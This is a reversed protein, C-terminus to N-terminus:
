NGTRGKGLVDCVEVLKQGEKAVVAKLDVWGFTHKGLGGEGEESVGDCGGADGGERGVDLGNEVVGWRVCDLVELSEEAEDIEVATKKRV